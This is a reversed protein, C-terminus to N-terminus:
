RCSDRPRLAPAARRPQRAHPLIRRCDAVPSLATPSLTLPRMPMSAPREVLDARNSEDRRKVGARNLCLMRTRNAETGATVGRASIGEGFGVLWSGAVAHWRGERCEYRM